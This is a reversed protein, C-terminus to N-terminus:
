EQMTSLSLQRGIPRALSAHMLNESWATHVVDEEPWATHVVDEPRASLRNTQSCCARM